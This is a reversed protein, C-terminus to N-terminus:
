CAKQDIPASESADPPASSSAESTGVIFTAAASIADTLETPNAKCVDGDRYLKALELVLDGVTKDTNDTSAPPGVVGALFSQTAAICVGWQTNDGKYEADIVPTCAQVVLPITMPAVAGVAQAALPLSCIMRLLFTAPKRM